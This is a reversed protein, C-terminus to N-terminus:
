DDVWDPGFDDHGNNYNIEVSQNYEQLLYNRSLINKAVSLKDRENDLENYAQNRERIASDREKQMNDREQRLSDREQTLEALRKMLKDIREILRDPRFNLFKKLFAIWDKRVCSQYEADKTVEGWTEPSVKVYPEQKVKGTIGKVEPIDEHSYEKRETPVNKEIDQLLREATKHIDTAEELKQKYEQKAAEVLRTSAEQAQEFMQAVDKEAEAIRADAAREAAKQREAAYADLRANDKKLQENEVAM